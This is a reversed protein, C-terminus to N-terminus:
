LRGSGTVGARATDDEESPDQPFDDIGRSGQEQELSVPELADMIVAKEINETYDHLKLDKKNKDLTVQAHNFIETPEQSAPALFDIRKM